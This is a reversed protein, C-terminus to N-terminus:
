RERAKCRDTRRQGTQGGRDQRDKRDQRHKKYVNRRGSGFPTWLGVKEACCTFGSVNGRNSPSTVGCRKGAEIIDRRRPASKKGCM